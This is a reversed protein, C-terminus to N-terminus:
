LHSAVRGVAGGAIAELAVGFSTAFAGAGITSVTGNVASTVKDGAAIAGTATVWFVVGRYVTVLDGVAADFAAIGIVKTDPGTTPAVTMNGTVSVVQGGTIAAGATLNIADGEFLYPVYDAM